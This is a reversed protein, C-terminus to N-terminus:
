IKATTHIQLFFGFWVSGLSAVQLTYEDKKYQFKLCISVNCFFPMRGDALIVELSM